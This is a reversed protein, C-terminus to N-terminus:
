LNSSLRSSFPKNSRCVALLNFVKLDFSAAIVIQNLSFTHLYEAHVRLLYLLEHIFNAKWVLLGGDKLEQLSENGAELTDRSHWSLLEDVGQMKDLVLRALHDYFFTLFGVLSEHDEFTFDGDGGGAIGKVCIDVRMALNMMKVILHPGLLEERLWYTSKLDARSSFPLPNSILIHEDVPVKM